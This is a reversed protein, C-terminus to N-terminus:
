HKTQYSPRRQALAAPSGACDAPVRIDVSLDRCRVTMPMAVSLQWGSEAGRLFAPTPYSPPYPRYTCGPAMDFDFACFQEQKKSGVLSTDRVIVWHQGPLMRAQYKSGAYSVGDIGAIQVDSVGAFDREFAGEVVALEAAPRGPGEYAKIPRVTECGGLACIVL